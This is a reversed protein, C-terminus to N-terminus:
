IAYVLTFQFKISNHTYYQSPKFTTETVSLLQHCLNTVTSKFTQVNSVPEWFPILKEKLYASYQLNQSHVVCDPLWLFLLILFKTQYFYSDSLIFLVFIPHTFISCTILIYKKCDFTTPLCMNINFVFM